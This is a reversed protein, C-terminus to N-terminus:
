KWMDMDRSTRLSLQPGYKTPNVGALTCAAMMRGRQLLPSKVLQLTRSCLAACCSDDLAIQYSMFNPILDICFWFSLQYPLIKLSTCRSRNLDAMLHFLWNVVERCLKSMATTNSRMTSMDRNGTWRTLPEWAATKLITLCTTGRSPALPVRPGKPRCLM